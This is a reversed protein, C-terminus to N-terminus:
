DGKGSLGYREALRMIPTTWVNQYLEDRKLTTETEM